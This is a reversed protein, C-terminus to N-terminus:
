SRIGYNATVWRSFNAGRNLQMFREVYDINCLGAPNHQWSYKLFVLSNPAGGQQLLAARPAQRLFRPANGCAGEPPLRDPNSSV